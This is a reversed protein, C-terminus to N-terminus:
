KTMNAIEKEYEAIKKQAYYIQQQMKAIEKEAKAKAEAVRKDSELEEATLDTANDFIKDLKDSYYKM